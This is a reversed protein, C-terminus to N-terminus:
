RASCGATQAPPPRPGRAFAQRLNPQDEQNKGDAQIQAQAPELTQAEGHNDGGDDAGSSTNFPPRSNPQASPQLTVALRNRAAMNITDLEAIM